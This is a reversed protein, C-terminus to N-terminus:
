WARRHSEAMKARWGDFLSSLEDAIQKQEGLLDRQEEIDERLNYQYRNSM